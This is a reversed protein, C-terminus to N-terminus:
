DRQAAREQAARIQEVAADVGVRAYRATSDHDRHGLASGVVPLSAGASVLNCAYTHRLDHFRLRRTIGAARKLLLFADQIKQKTWPLGVADLFVLGSVSQISRAKAVKLAAACRDSIPITIPESTKVQVFRIVGDPESVARWRLAILDSKRMGTEIAAVVLPAFAVHRDWIRDRTPEKGAVSEFAPRDQLAALIARHEVRSLELTPRSASPLEVEGRVPDERIVGRKVAARLVRRVVQAYERATTASKGTRLLDTVLDDVVTATVADLRTSGIRPLISALAYRYFRVTGDKMKGRLVASECVKIWGSGAFEAFTQVPTPEPTRDPTM